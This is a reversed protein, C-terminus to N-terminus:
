CVFCKLQVSKFEFFRFYVDFRQNDLLRHLIVSPQNQAWLLCFKLNRRVELLYLESSSNNHGDFSFKFTIKEVSFELHLLLLLINLVCFCECIHCSTQGDNVFGLRIFGDLERYPLSLFKVLMMLCQDLLLSPEVSLSFCLNEFGFLILHHLL